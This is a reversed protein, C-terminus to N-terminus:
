PIEKVGLGRLAVRAKAAVYWADPNIEIIKKYCDIANQNQGLKEYVHGLNLYAFLDQPNKDLYDRFIVASENYRGLIMKRFALEDIKGPPVDVTYGMKESVGEFHRAIDEM